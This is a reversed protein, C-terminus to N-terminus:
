PSVIIKGDDTRFRINAAKQLVEFVKNFPLDRPISGTFRDQINGKVIIDMNYWRSLQRVVSNIDDNDFWFLNDKWGVAKNVDAERVLQMEGNEKLRAQQGPKLLVAKGGESVKVSGELLTTKVSPEGDYAMINFHTGLVEVAMDGVTVKFPRRSNQAVEFYAQGTMTVQRYRGTFAAPFRVSSAADLWVRSGDPLIVIYKGGRPTSIMNYLTAATSGKLPQYRLQGPGVKIIKTGAQMSLLGNGASDLIIKKGGALTLVARNGGPLIAAPKQHVSAAYKEQPKGTLLYLAGAASLLLALAAAIQWLHARKMKKVRGYVTAKRVESLGTKKRVAELSRATSEKLAGADGELFELSSSDFSEYWAELRNKEAESATGALYKRILRTLQEETMNADEIYYNRSFWIVAVVLRFIKIKM